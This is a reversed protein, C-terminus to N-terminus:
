SSFIHNACTGNMQIFESLQFHELVIVRVILGSRYVM